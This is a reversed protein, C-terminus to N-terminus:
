AVRRRRAEETRAVETPRAASWVGFLGVALTAAFELTTWGVLRLPADLSWAGPGALGILAFITLLTLDFEYGGNASWFGKPWKVRWIAVVMDVVLIGAAIGTLFGAAFMVGGVLEGYAAMAAWAPAPRFGLGDVVKTFASMGPGGFLGLVKQAGHAAIV